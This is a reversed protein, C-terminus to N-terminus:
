VELPRTLVLGFSKHEGGKIMALVKQAGGGGSKYPYFKM